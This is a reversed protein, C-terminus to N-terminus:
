RIALWSAAVDDQQVRGVHLTQAQLGILLDANSTGGAFHAVLKGSRKVDPSSVSQHVARFRVHQDGMLDVRLGARGAELVDM